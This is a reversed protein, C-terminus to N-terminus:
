KTHQLGMNAKVIDTHHDAADSHEQRQASTWYKPEYSGVHLLDLM